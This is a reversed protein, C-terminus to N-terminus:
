QCIVFDHKADPSDLNFNYPKWQLNKTWFASDSSFNTFKKLYVKKVHRQLSTIERGLFCHNGTHSRSPLIETLWLPLQWNLNSNEFSSMVFSPSGQGWATDQETIFTMKLNSANQTVCGYAPTISFFQLLGKQTKIFSALIYGKLNM